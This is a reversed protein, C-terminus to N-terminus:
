ISVRGFGKRPIKRFTLDGVCQQCNGISFTAELEGAKQQGEPPEPPWCIKNVKNRSYRNFEGKYNVGASYYDTVIEKNDFIKEAEVHSIEKCPFGVAYSNMGAYQMPINFMIMLYELTETDPYKCVSFTMVSRLHKRHRKNPLFVIKEKTFPPIVFSCINELRTQNKGASDWLFYTGPPTENVGSTLTEATLFYKTANKICLEFSMTTGFSYITSNRQDQSDNKFELGNPLNKWTERIDKWFNEHFKIESTKKESHNKDRFHNLYPSLKDIYETYDSIRPKIDRQKKLLCYTYGYDPIRSEEKEVEIRLYEREELDKVKRKQEELEFERQQLMEKLQEHETMVKEVDNTKFPPKQIISNWLSDLGEDFAKVEDTDDQYYCADIFFTKLPLSNRIKFEKKIERVYDNAWEQDSKEQNLRRRKINKKDMPLKTFVIGINEWIKPTFMGQFIKIMATMSQELRPNSGNVAILIQNVQKIDKLRDVLDSIIKADQNTKPDDFGPTDILTVPKFENGAYCYDGTTIQTTCADTKASVPFGGSILTSDAMKGSFINCLSSKGTGTKGLVLITPIKWDYGNELINSKITIWYEELCTIFVKGDTDCYNNINDNNCNDYDKFFCKLQKMVELKIRIFLLRQYEILAHKKGGEKLAALILEPATSPNANSNNHFNELDLRQLHQKVSKLNRSRPSCLKALKHYETLIVQDQMNQLQIRDSQNKRRKSTHIQKIFNRFKTGKIIKIEDLILINSLIQEVAKEQQSTNCSSVHYYYTVMNNGIDISANFADFIPLNSVFLVPVSIKKGQDRLCYLFAPLKIKKELDLDKEKLDQFLKEINELSRINFNPNKRAREYKKLMISDQEGTKEEYKKNM